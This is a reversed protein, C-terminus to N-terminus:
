DKLDEKGAGTVAQVETVRPRRRTIQGDPSIDCLLLFLRRVIEEKRQDGEILKWADEAHRSLAETIGGADDYDKHMLQVLTDNQKARRVALKWTRMLAHQM